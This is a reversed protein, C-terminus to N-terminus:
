LRSQCGVPHRGLGFGSDLRRLNGLVPYVPKKCDSQVCGLFRSHLTRDSHWYGRHQDRVDPRLLGRYKAFRWRPRDDSIALGQALPGSLTIYSALGMVLVIVFSRMDGGGLRALAGFGCNGSLAMGYGFLLGGLISAAPIWKQGLYITKSLDLGGLGVLAFTGIIAVGIAIGWMRLRLDNGGYLYDEIAGLTCFRGFRAALGLFLGGLLGILAVLTTDNVLELM